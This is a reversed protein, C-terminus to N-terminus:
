PRQAQNVALCLQSLSITRYPFPQLTSPTRRRSTPLCAGSVLRPIGQWVIMSSFMRSLVVVM